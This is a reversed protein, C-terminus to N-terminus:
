YFILIDVLFGVFFLFALLAIVSILVMFGVRLIEGLTEPSPDAKLDNFFDKHIERFKPEFDCELWKLILISYSGIVSVMLIILVLSILGMLIFGIATM